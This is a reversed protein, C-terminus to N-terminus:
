YIAYYTNINTNIGNVNSTQDSKYFIIESINGAFRQTNTTNMDAFLASNGDTSISGSPQGITQSVNNKYFLLKTAGTLNLMSKLYFTNLAQTGDSHVALGSWEFANQTTAEWGSSMANLATGFASGMAWDYAYGTGSNRQVCYFTSVPASTSGLSFLMFYNGNSQITPKSNQTIVSGGSVIQPQNAQTSQTANVSNGSQDYWTTIFGNGAGVFTTLASTNLNNGTFGIDQETNDSSRRVRIASGTYATRLKRLSYAAAASPYLDLLLSTITLTANTVTATGSVSAAVNDATTITASTLNASASINSVVNHVTTLTATTLNATADLNSVVTAIRLLDANVLTATGVSSSVFTVGVAAELTTQATATMEAFIVRSIQANVIAQASAELAANVSYSLSADGSINATADASANIVITIQAASETTATATMSADVVKTVTADLITTASTTSSSILTATRKIDATVNASATLSADVSVIGQSVVELVSTTTATANLSSEVFKVLITEGSVNANAAMTSDVSIVKTLNATSTANATVSSAVEIILQQGSTLTATTSASANSQCALYLLSNVNASLTASSNVSAAVDITLAYSGTYSSRYVGTCFVFRRDNSIDIKEIQYLSNRYVFRSDTTINQNYRLTFNIKQQSVIKDADEEEFGTKYDLATWLTSINSYTESQFGSDSQSIVRNQLIVRERMKGVIESKNYGIM